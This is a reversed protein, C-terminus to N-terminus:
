KFTAATCINGYHTSFKIDPGYIPDHMIYDDGDKKTLVVFHSGGSACGGVGVIVYNGNNLEQTISSDDTGISSYSRGAVGTWPLRMYATSGFFRSTDNAIDSPTVNSGYKKGVMAVSTLLCGVNLINESSYGITQNAWRADRQSYYSGDSGNGFQNASIIGAGASSVFSKFGALQAQAQAILRQYTSESSQTDALLKQKQSKQEQLSQEQANLTSTLADLEVKKEERLSKQEEFNSKTEQVQVLLRQNNDRATKVYKIKTLLDDVNGSDFLLGFLSVQRQKYGQVIKNLMLRSIYDLSDDLGEIRSGLIEIEDQTSVIKQETDQIQLTTLYIQTDMYQIQSSLTNRQQSLSRLRESCKNIYENLEQQSRGSLDIGLECEIAQVKVLSAFFLLTLLLFTNRFIKKM